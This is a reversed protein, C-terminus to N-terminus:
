YLHKPSPKSDIAGESIWTIAGLPKIRASIDTLDGQLNRVKMIKLLRQQIFADWLYTIQNQLCFCQDCRGASDQGCWVPGWCWLHWELKAATITMPQNLKKEDDHHLTHCLVAHICGKSRVTRAPKDEITSQYLGVSFAGKKAPINSMRVSM